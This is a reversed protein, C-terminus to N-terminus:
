APGGEDADGNPSAPFTRYLHSRSLGSAAAILWVPNGAEKALTVLQLREAELAQLETTCQQLAALTQTRWATDSTRKLRRPIM